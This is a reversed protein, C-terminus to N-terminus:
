LSGTLVLGGGERTVMPTLALRRSAAPSTHDIVMWVAGVGAALLGVGMLGFGWRRSSAATERSSQGSVGVGEATRAQQEQNNAFQLLAVGVVFATLGAGGVWYPARSPRPAAPAESPEGARAQAVGAFTAFTSALVIISVCRGLSM